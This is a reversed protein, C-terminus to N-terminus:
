SVTANAGLSQAAARRRAREALRKRRQERFTAVTWRTLIYFILGAGIGLPLAGAIMPKLFPEWLRAFELHRLVHGLHMPAVDGPHSGYLIMKGVKYTAGWIFPFTLPNGVATGFASAVLNGGMVWAAAAALLFHFGLLPTFSAFVGAAVGAAIAHPTARLRLARKAFYQASRWFSRRPWVLTRTREWLDARKRRKFLM